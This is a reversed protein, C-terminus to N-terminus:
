GRRHALMLLAVSIQPETFATPATDAIFHDLRRTVDPRSTVAKMQTAISASTLRGEM